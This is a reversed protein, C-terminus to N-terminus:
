ITEPIALAHQLRHRVNVKKFSKIQIQTLTYPMQTCLGCSPTSDETVTIIPLQSGGIHTSFVLGMDELLATLARLWQAM